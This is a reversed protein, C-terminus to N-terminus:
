QSYIFDGDRYLAGSRELDEYVRRILQNEELGLFRENMSWILPIAHVFAPFDASPLRQKDQLVFAVLVKTANWAFKESNDIFGALRQHARALAEDVAVFPVGHGPIVCDIALRGLHELTQRAADLGGPQGLLDPFVLGFGNEWLADGSILLRKEPNYYVLAHMDHGPAAQAQWCLGGLEFAEGAQILHDYQYRPASQGLPALLLADEDWRAVAEASGAPIHIQCGYAAQVAPNGGMHDSHAHTIYLRELRRGALAHHLLALTQGVHSHYGSDILSAREGEFFLINNASLWGRELVQMSSPLRFSM